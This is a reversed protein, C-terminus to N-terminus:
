RRTERRHGRGLCKSIRESKKENSRPTNIRILWCPHPVALVHRPVGGCSRMAIPADTSSLPPDLWRSRASRRASMSRSSPCEGQGKAPLGRLHEMIAQWEKIERDADKGTGTAVSSRDVTGPPALLNATSNRPDELAELRSTLPQGDKNKPVLALKGKTFKPIATLFTGLMLPLHPSYLREDKGAIDIM